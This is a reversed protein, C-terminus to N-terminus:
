KAPAAAPAATTFRDIWTLVEKHWRKSNAPKLVWHNEDPFHLFRSEIGRRQLATFTAIGQTEVVRFDRGGHIVLTPTKWKAVFDRPDHKSYGAANEWPTKGHEWEPFWLEETEYYAMVEDINGDHCVLAKFRDTHGNVWNIMYGGYSAGLAVMRTSDVYNYKALTADVGKMIDDFPAGGWDNRIADTFAQGYGTSGHFDVMLTAYGHGAFIEPNWRYHFHDNFSGQPGGHILVALPVKTGPAPAGAPKIFWAYVKDGKAGAFTLQEPEGWAISKVRADNVHTIAKPEKGDLASLWVEAPNRMSDHMWVLKDGAIALSQNMGEVAWPTARGEAVTVSFIAHKGLNDASVFLTKGDPAWVMDQPSRDFADAVAREKKTKWDLVMIRRRDSEYGPRSMSLYALQTGDPSFVPHTDEGTNKDTLNRPRDKGDASVAWLDINTSWANQKGVMKSSFVIESGDKSIAIEEVGGFPKSPADDSLGKTLDLIPSGETWVFVHNRKGDDWADWHRMPLSEYARVKSPDKERLDDRRRTEDLSDTDPFVDLILALRKGDPFPLFGEVDVPLSTVKKAEGGAVSVRYVQTSGDRSSLFYVGKGDASFRPSHDPAPHDTLRVAGSGDVGRVWVDSWSKNANVDPTRVTFAVLKGDPSAALDDIRKMAIMDDFTFPHPPGDAVPADAPASALTPAAVSTPTKAPTGGCAALALLSAISAVLTASSQLVKM